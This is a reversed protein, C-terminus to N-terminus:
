REWDCAPPVYERPPNDTLMQAVICDCCLGGYRRQEDETRYAVPADNVHCRRCRRLYGSGDCTNCAYGYDNMGDGGCDACERAFRPRRTYAM